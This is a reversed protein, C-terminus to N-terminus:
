FKFFINNQYKGELPTHHEHLLRGPPSLQRRRIIEVMLVQNLTEFERSMIIDNYCNDRVVVRLCYEKLFGLDLAHANSLAVLVNRHNITSTLYQVCLQELRRM